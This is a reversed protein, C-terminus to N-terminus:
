KKGIDEWKVASVENHSFKRLKDRDLRMVLKCAPDPCAVLADTEIWDAPHNQRQKIPLLPITSQLAYLCFSQNPPLMIKGGQVYFQDGINMNCTCHGDIREVRVILDYLQFEDDKM